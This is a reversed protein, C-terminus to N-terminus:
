LRFILLEIGKMKMMAEHIVRQKDCDSSKDKSKM